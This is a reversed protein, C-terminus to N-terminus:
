SFVDIRQEGCTVKEKKPRWDGGAVVNQITFHSRMQARDFFAEIVQNALDFACTFVETCSIWWRDHGLEALGVAPRCEIV